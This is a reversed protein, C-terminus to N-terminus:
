CIRVTDDNPNRKQIFILHIFTIFTLPRDIVLCLTSFNLNFFFPKSTTYVQPSDM